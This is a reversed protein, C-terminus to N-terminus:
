TTGAAGIGEGILQMGEAIDARIAARLAAADRAGIAAIAQKHHDVLMRTGVRGYVMRMFPGFQLWVSEVLPLLVESGAAEYIAFHFAHNLRMYAEVDGNGLSADIEDDLAQLRRVDAKGLFPLALVAVQPELLMRADLIEGFKRDTMRPVAVRGSVSVDLANEAALGRIAERVPMPSTGLEEALGRLTVSRGPQIRGIILAERLALSM